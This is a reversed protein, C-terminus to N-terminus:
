YAEVHRLQKKVKAMYYGAQAALSLSNQRTILEPATQALYYYFSGQKPLLRIAEEFREAAQSREGKLMYNYGTAAIYYPKYLPQSYFKKEKTYTDNKFMFHYAFWPIDALTYGTKDIAAIVLEVYPAFSDFPLSGSLAEGIILRNLRDFRGGSVLSVTHNMVSSRDSVHVGGFAHGIEHILINSTYYAQWFENGQPLTVDNVVIVRQGIETMGVTEVTSHLFYDAATQRNFLFIVLGDAKLPILKKITELTNLTTGSEESPVAVVTLPRDVLSVGFQSEFIQSSVESLRQVQKRWSVGHQKIYSSDIYWYLPIGQNTQPSVISRQPFQELLRAVARQMVFERPETLRRMRNTMTRSMAEDLWNIRGYEEVEKQPQILPSKESTEANLSLKITFLSDSTKRFRRRHHDTEIYAAEHYAIKGTVRIINNLSAPLPVTTDPPNYSIVEYGKEKLYFSVYENLEEALPFKSLEPEAVEIDYVIRVTDGPTSLDASNVLSPLIVCLLSWFLKQMNM